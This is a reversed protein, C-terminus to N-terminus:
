IAICTRSICQLYYVNYISVKIAENQKLTEITPFNYFDRICHTSIVDKKIGSEKKKKKKIEPTVLSTLSGNVLSFVM